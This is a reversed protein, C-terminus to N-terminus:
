RRAEKAMKSLFLFVDKAASNEALPEFDPDNKRLRLVTPPDDFAAM